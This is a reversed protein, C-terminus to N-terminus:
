KIWQGGKVLKDPHESLDAASNMSVVFSRYGTNSTAFASGLRGVDLDRWHALDSHVEAFCM